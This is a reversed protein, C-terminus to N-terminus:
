SRREGRRRARKPLVWLDDYRKWVDKVIGDSSDFTDHIVGDVVAVVHKPQVVLVRGRPFECDSIHPDLLERLTFPKDDEQTDRFDLPVYCREWGNAMLVKEIIPMRERSRWKSRPAEDKTTRWRSIRRFFKWVERYPLETAIAFARVTCDGSEGYFEADLKGGDDFVFRNHTPQNV